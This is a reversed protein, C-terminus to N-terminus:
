GYFKEKAIIFLDGVLARLNPFMNAKSIGYYISKLIQNRTLNNIRIKNIEIFELVNQKHENDLSTNQYLNNLLTIRRELNLIRNEKSHKPTFTMNLGITNSNHIRYSILQKNTYYFRRENSAILAIYWDHIYNNPPMDLFQEKLKNSMAMTCGPFTNGKLCSNFNVIGSSKQIKHHKNIRKGKEDILHYASAILDANKTKFLDLFFEIKNEEWIDDQDAFFILDGTSYLVARRFTEVVGLNKENEYYKFNINEINKMLENIIDYCKESSYDDVFVIEDPKVTQNLISEIQQQLFKKGNYIAIAVSVKM